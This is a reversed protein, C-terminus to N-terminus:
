NSVKAFSMMPKALPTQTAENAENAEGNSDKSENSDNNAEGSEGSESSTGDEGDKFLSAPSTPDAPTAVNPLSGSGNVAGTQVGGQQQAHAAMARAVGEAGAIRVHPRIAPSNKVEEILRRASAEDAFEVTAVGKNFAIVKGEHHLKMRPFVSILSVKIM